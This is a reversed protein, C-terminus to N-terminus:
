SERCGCPTPRALTLIAAFKSTVSRGPDMTNGGGPRLGRRRVRRVGHRALAGAGRRATRRRGPPGRRAPQPGDRGAPRVPHTSRRPTSRSSAARRVPSWRSRGTWVSPRGAARLRSVLNHVASVRDTIAEPGWLVDGLRDVSVVDGKTCWCFPLCGACGRGGRWRPTAKRPPSRWPASFGCGCARLGELPGAGASDPQTTPLGRHISRHWVEVTM